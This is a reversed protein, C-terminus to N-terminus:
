FILVSDFDNFIAGDTPKKILVPLFDARTNESIKSLLTDPDTVWIAPIDYLPTSKAMGHLRTRDDLLLATVDDALEIQIEHEFSAFLFALAMAEYSILESDSKIIFHLKM